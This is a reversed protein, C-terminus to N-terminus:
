PEVERRLQELGRRVRSQATRLTCHQVAAVERLSLRHGFRLILAERQVAPLGEVLRLFADTTEAAALAPDEAWPEPGEELYLPPKRRAEDACLHRATTYLYARLTKERVQGQGLARIARYFAEQALDEATQRSRCLWFCYSLLAAYHAEVWANIEKGSWGM